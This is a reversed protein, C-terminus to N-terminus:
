VRGLAHFTTVLPIGFTQKLRCGVVGSMWFNAHVVAYRNGRRIHRAMWDAFSPMYQLLDEKPVYRPPGAPVRYVRYGFPTEVLTGGEASDRRTFVDVAFGVKALHKAIQAVYVNQGGSDVGGLEAIPSAHESIIAVNITM